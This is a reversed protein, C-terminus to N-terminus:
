GDRLLPVAGLDGWLYKVTGENQFVLLMIILFLNLLIYWAFRHQKYGLFYSFIDFINRNTSAFTLCIMM